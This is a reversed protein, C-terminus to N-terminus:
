RVRFRYVGGADPEVRVAMGWQGNRYMGHKNFEGARNPKFLVMTWGDWFANSYGDVFREAADLNLKLM